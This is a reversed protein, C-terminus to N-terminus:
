FWWSETDLSDAGGLSEIDPGHQLLGQCWIAGRYGLGRWVELDFPCLVAFLKFIGGKRLRASNNNLAAGHFGCFLYSAHSRVTARSDHVIVTVSILQQTTLRATTAAQTHTTFSCMPASVCLVPGTYRALSQKTAPRPCQEPELLLPRKFTNRCKLPQMWTLCAAHVATHTHTVGTALSIKQCLLNLLAPPCHM